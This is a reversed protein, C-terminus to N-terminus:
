QTSMFAKAYLEAMMRDSIVIDAPREANDFILLWGGRARLEALLRDVSDAVTLGVPVGLKAALAALQDPILVPQEADVWWVVDYDAAFRHAYELALQTKGVGGLGYLAQVVLTHEGAHLRQHLQELLGARGTFHPNRLPVNWADPFRATPLQDAAAAAPAGDAPRPPVGTRGTGVTPKSETPPTWDLRRDQALIAGQLEQLAHGPDIGLEEALLKRTRQYAALAEAQRGSRYLSLLLQRHLGEQLPYEAVLAQLEGVAIREGSFAIRSIRFPPTAPV